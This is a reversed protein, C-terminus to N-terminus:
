QQRYVPIAHGRFHQNESSLSIHLFPYRRFITLAALLFAPWKGHGLRQRQERQNVLSPYLGLGSNNLFIRGNVEGVDIAVSHGASITRVAGELDLPIRLDKAFHNLTGLPLVGLTKDTDILASAVANITGDGGGAVVIKGSSSATRQALEVLEEGSQARLINAELGQARFLQALKAGVDENSSTGSGANIIVDM